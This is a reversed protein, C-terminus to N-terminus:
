GCRLVTIVLELCKATSCRRVARSVVVGWYWLTWRNHYRQQFVEATCELEETAGLTPTQGHDTVGLCWLLLSVPRVANQTAPGASPNGCRPLPKGTRVISWLRKPSKVSSAAWNRCTWMYRTPGMSTLPSCM